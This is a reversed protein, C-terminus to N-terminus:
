GFLTVQRAFHFCVFILNDFYLTLRSCSFCGLWFLVVKLIQLVDLVLNDALFCSM